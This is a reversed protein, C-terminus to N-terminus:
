LPLSVQTRYGNEYDFQYSGSVQEARDEMDMLGKGSRNIEKQSGNDQIDLLINKQVCSLAISLETADSHKTINNISEKFILYLTHRIETPLIKIHEPIANDFSFQIAGQSLMSTLYDKMRFELDMPTSKRADIAWVMDRMRGSAERLKFSMEELISKQNENAGIQLMESQLSINALATGVDDHLDKSIKNRIQELQLQEKLKQSKMRGNILFGLLIFIGTLLSLLINRNRIKSNTEDQAKKLKKNEIIKSELIFNKKNWKTAHDSVKAFKKKYTAFLKEIVSRIKGQDNREAYIRLLNSVLGLFEEEDHAETKEIGQQLYYLAEEENNQKLYHYGLEIYSVSRMITADTEMLHLASKLHNEYLVLNGRTKEMIAKNSSVYYLGKIFGVSEWIAEAKGFNIIASKYDKENSYASGLSLFVYGPLIESESKDILARAKFLLDKLKKADTKVEKLLTQNLLAELQGKYYKIEKSVELAREYHFAAQLQNGEHLNVLGLYIQTTVFFKDFKRKHQYISDAKHLVIRADKIKEINYYLIGALTFIKENSPCSQEVAQQYILPTIEATWNSEELEHIFISDIITNIKECSMLQVTAYSHHSALLFISLWLCVFLTSLNKCNMKDISPVQIWSLIIQM